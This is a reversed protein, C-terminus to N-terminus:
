WYVHLTPFMKIIYRHETGCGTRLEDGPNNIGTARFRVERNSVPFMVTVQPNSSTV